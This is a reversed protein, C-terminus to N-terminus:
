AIGAQIDAGLMSAVHSQIVPVSSSDYFGLTPTYRTFPNYGQQNWAEPFWPYYFAARIPFTLSGPPTPSPTPPPPTPTPALTPTPTPPPPTPVPSPTPSACLPHNPKRACNPAEAAVPVTLLGAILALSLVGLLLRRM